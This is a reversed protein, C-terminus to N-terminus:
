RKRGLDTPVLDAPDLNKWAATCSGATGTPPPGRHNPARDWIGLQHGARSGEARLRQELPQMLWVRLPRVFGVLPHAGLSFHLKQSKIERM